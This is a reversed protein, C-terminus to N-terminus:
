TVSAANLIKYLRLFPVLPNLFTGAFYAFFAAQLIFLVGSVIMGLYLM